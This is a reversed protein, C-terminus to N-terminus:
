QEESWTLKGGYNIKNEDTWTTNGAIYSVDATVKNFAYQAIEPADGKFSIAKLATCRSFAYDGIKKVKEPIAISTLKACGYFASDKIETLEKPLIIEKLSSCNKFAYTGISTVSDTLVIEALNTMGYFAFDGVSTIGDEVVVKNIELSSENWPRQKASDYNDVAGSGSITLTGDKVEWYATKGCQQKEGSEKWDLTGGYNKKMDSTWSADDSLYTVVAVVGSFAHAAITPASGEFKVQNLQVNRSFVYDGIKTVKAPITINALRTCGYFASDKIEILNQPLTIQEISSCNKFSYAGIATVSDALEVETLNTMGYFAFNGVNTIGDEVVVKTIEAASENWPRQKASDYDDVSGNGSITLVGDVVEWYANKGCQQKNDDAKNNWTLTGGYQQKTDKNWSNNDTPYTVAATVGYFTHAGISPADGVFSIKKLKTDRSFAYDGIETVKSPIVIETLGCDYFTSEGIKTVASPIVIETLKKCNKFAYGGISTVSDSLQVSTLNSFGYFAFTGIKTVGDAVVISTIDERNAYWPTKSASDYNKMVSDDNIMLVHEKIEWPQPQDWTLQGGYNQKKDATWSANDKPYEVSAKVGSFAGTQIEPADGAFTIQKIGTCRSFAYGGISKLSVPFSIESLGSCGYFASEGISDLKDPLQIATLAACNKFVYGGIKTVSDAISVSNLNTLGYFAFSGIETIGDEVVVSTIKAREKYWPQASAKDYSDMAGEGSITLVGNELKYSVKEPEPEPEKSENLTGMKVPANTVNWVSGDTRLAYTKDQDTWIDVVHDLFVTDYKVLAQEHNDYTTYLCYEDINKIRVQSMENVSQDDSVRYYKGNQKKYQWSTEIGDRYDRNLLSVGSDVKILDNGWDETLYLTNDESLVLNFVGVNLIDKVKVNGVCRDDDLLYFYGNEDYYSRECSGFASADVHYEETDCSSKSYRISVITGDSKLYGGSNSDWRVIDIVNDSLKSFVGNEEYGSRGWVSGDSKLIMTFGSGSQWRTVNAIPKPDDAHLDYFNGKNDIAGGPGAEAINEAIKQHEVTWLTNDNDVYYGLYTDIPWYDIESSKYVSDAIYLKVNEQIKKVEPNTSWLTGNSDLLYAKDESIESNENKELDAKKIEVNGQYNDGLTQDKPSNVKVVVDKSLEKTYTVHIKATGQKLLTTEAYDGELESIYEAGDLIDTEIDILFYYKLIPMKDGPLGSIEDPIEQFNWKEEDSVGTNDLELCRLSKLDALAQIDTFEDNNSLDLFRLKQMKSLLSADTFGTGPLQLSTLNTLKELGDWSDVKKANISLSSFYKLNELGKLCGIEEFEGQLLNLKKCESLWEFDDIKKCGDIYLRRLNNLQKFVSFDSIEYCEGVSLREINNFSELGNLSQVQDDHWVCSVWLYGDATTLEDETLYGNADKDYRSVMESQLVPDEFVVANAPQEIVTIHYEFLTTGDADKIHIDAKGLKIAHVKFDITQDQDSKNTTINTVTCVAQDSSDVTINDLNSAMWDYEKEDDANYSYNSESLWINGPTMTKNWNKQEKINFRYEASGTYRGIGTIIVRGTGVEMNDKYTLTYDIGEELKVLDFSVEVSPIAAQGDFIVVKQVSINCADIPITSADLDIFILNNDSAYKEATTGIKGIIYFKEIQTDYSDYGVAYEDIKEVSEPIEMKRFNCGRFAAYGISKLTEPLEISDLKECYEFACSEISELGTPLEVCEANKFGSFMGNPIEKVQNGIIIKVADDKFREWPYIGDEQAQTLDEGDIKLVGDDSYSWSVGNIEGSNELKDVVVKIIQKIPNDGSPNDYSFDFRYLEQASLESTATIITWNDNYNRNSEFGADIWYHGEAGKEVKFRYYGDEEPTFDTQNKGNETDIEIYNEGLSLKDTVQVVEFELTREGSYNGIGKVTVSATGVEKNNQYSVEYDQGEILKTGDMVTIAPTKPTGDYAVRKEEVSVSCLDLPIEPHAVDIFTFGKSAAYEEASSGKAGIIYFNSILEGGDAYGFSYDGITEVTEPITVHHMGCNWFAYWGITKLSNPFSISTLSTNDSFAGEQIETLGDPLEVSNLTRFYEFARTPIVKVQDGIVLKEAEDKFTNWPYYEEKAQTLDTGNVTLVKDESYNWSVGNVEGSTELKECVIKVVEDRRLNSITINYQEGASVKAATEMVIPYGQYDSYARSNMSSELDFIDISSTDIYFRYYGDEEPIFDLGCEGDEAHIDVFNNGMALTNSPNVIEFELTKEGAYTTGNGKITVSATGIDTNSRYTLTYDEGDVLETDGDIVKVAPTKPEGAYVVYKEALSASCLDLSIVPNVADVFTIGRGNAFTEAVSGKVGVIYFRDSVEDFASDKIEKVSEPIVAKALAKCYWFANEDIKEVGDPINVEKLATCQYLFRRPIEKLTSPLQIMTLNSCSDFECGNLATIGEEIIVKKITQRYWPTDSVDEYDYLAGEGKITLTEDHDLSWKANEGCRDMDTKVYVDISGTLSDNLYKVALYYTKGGELSCIIKFNYNEGGDDNSMLCNEDSDYLSAYTDESGTSYFGYVGSESPTYALVKENGGEAIEVSNKGVQLEEAMEIASDDLDQVAIETEKNTEQKQVATETEEEVTTETEASVTEETMPIEDAETELVEDTEAPTTYEQAYVTQGLLMSFAMVVAVFKRKKM